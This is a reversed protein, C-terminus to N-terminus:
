LLRMGAYRAADEDFTVTERCGAAAGSREILCDAFDAKFQSFRRLASAVATDNEVVLERSNLLQELCPVLEAKSLRYKSRLVWVSEILSVLSVFGPSEPRLDRMFDAVRSGQELDDKTFFRVLINTDIGTM